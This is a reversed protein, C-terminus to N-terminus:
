DGKYPSGGQPLGVLDLTAVLAQSFPWVYSYANGPQAPHFPRYLKASSVYFQAQMASYAKIAREANLDSASPAASAADRVSTTRLALLLPSGLALAAASLGFTRRTIRM